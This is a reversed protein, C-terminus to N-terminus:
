ANDFDAFVWHAVPGSAKVCRVKRTLFGVRLFTIDGPKHERDTRTEIVRTDKM